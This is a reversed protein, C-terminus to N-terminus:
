GRTRFDRYIKEMVMLHDGHRALDYPAINVARLYARTLRGDEVDLEIMNVCAPDQEFAKIASLGAGIVHTLLIRNVGDHAVILANAWDDRAILDDWAAHVRVALDAWHEGRLFGGDPDAGTEYAYAIEQEQLEPPIERLRGARVEKLRHEEHLPLPRDGLVIRATEVTRALGSCLALDFPIDDLLEAAAQAQERGRPTLPVSRPDLPQGSADFYSVQAHRMLYIRRRCRTGPLGQM